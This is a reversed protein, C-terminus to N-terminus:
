MLWKHSLRDLGRVMQYISTVPGRDLFVSQHARAPQHFNASSGLAIRGSM